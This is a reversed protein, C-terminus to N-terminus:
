TNKKPSHFAIRDSVKGWVYGAESSSVREKQGLPRASCARIPEAKVWFTGNSACGKSM